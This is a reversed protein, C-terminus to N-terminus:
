GGRKHTAVSDDWKRRILRIAVEKCQSCLDKKITFLSTSYFIGDVKIYDEGINIVAMCSSCDLAVKGDHRKWEMNSM